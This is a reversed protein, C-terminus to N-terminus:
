RGIRFLDAQEADTRTLDDGAVRATLAVVTAETVLRAAAETYAASLTAILAGAEGFDGWPLDAGAADLAEAATLLGAAADRVAAHDLTIEGGGAVPDSRM